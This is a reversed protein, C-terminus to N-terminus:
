RASRARALEVLEVITRELLPRGSFSFGFRDLRTCAMVGLATRDTDPPLPIHRGSAAQVMQAIDRTSVILDSCNFAHGAVLSESATLLLSVARAVDAGHVETGIRSVAPPDGTLLGAVLDLWKTRVVPRTIGYIGTPRLAAVCWGDQRAFSAVFSELAVKAAGYHTDPVPAVDETLMVDAPPTGYVARSSLVVARPVDHHRAASLLALSGGVNARVFGPLDDGEGGRYRGPVHHFAAHVLADAGRLLGSFDADPDLDGTVKEVDGPLHGADADRVLARVSHGGALFEDVIFAGAYGTAGTLAVLM